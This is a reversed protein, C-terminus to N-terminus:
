VRKSLTFSFQAWEESLKTEDVSGAFGTRANGLYWLLSCTIAIDVTSSTGLGMTFIWQQEPNPTSSRLHAAVSALMCSSSLSPNTDFGASREAERIRPSPIAKTCRLPRFVPLFQFLIPESSSQNDRQVLKSLRLLALLLQFPPSCVFQLSPFRRVVPAAMYWNRKSLM